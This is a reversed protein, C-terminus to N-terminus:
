KEIKEQPGIERIAVGDIYFGQEEEGEQSVMDRSVFTANNHLKVEWVEELTGDEGAWSIAVKDGVNLTKGKKTHAHGIVDAGKEIYTPGGVGQRVRQFIGEEQFGPNGFGFHHCRVEKPLSM